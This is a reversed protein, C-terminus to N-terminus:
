PRTYDQKYEEVLRICFALLNGLLRSGVPNNAGNRHLFKKNDFLSLWSILEHLCHSARLAFHLLASLGGSLVVGLRASEYAVNTGYLGAYLTTGFCASNQLLGSLERASKYPLRPYNCPIM